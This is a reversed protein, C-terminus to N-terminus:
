AAVELRRDRQKKARAVWSCVTGDPVGHRAAIVSIKDVAFEALIQEYFGAPKFSRATGTRRLGLRIAKCHVSIASRFGGGPVPFTRALEALPTDPYVARLLMVEDKDWPIGSM